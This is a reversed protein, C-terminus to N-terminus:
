LDIEWLDNFTLSALDRLDVQKAQISKFWTWNSSIRSDCSRAYCKQPVALLLFFRFYFSQCIHQTPLPTFYWESCQGIPLQWSAMPLIKSRSNRVLCLPLIAYGVLFFFLTNARVRDSMITPGQFFLWQFIRRFLITYNHLRKSLTLSPENSHWPWLIKGMSKFTLTVLLINM